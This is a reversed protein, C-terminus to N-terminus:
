IRRQKRVRGGIWVALLKTLFSVFVLGAVQPTIGAALVVALDILFYVLWVIFGARLGGECQWWGAVWCGALFMLPMGALISCYPAAVQIHDQYYSEEHGPDILHGYIVMYVISLAVNAVLVLRAVGFLPLLRNLKM